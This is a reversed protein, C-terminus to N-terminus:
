RDRSEAELREFARRIDGACGPILRVLHERLYGRLAVERAVSTNKIADVVVEDDILQLVTDWRREAMALDRAADAEEQSVQTGPHGPRDHADMPPYSM